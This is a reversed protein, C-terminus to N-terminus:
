RVGEGPPVALTAEWIYIQDQWEWRCRKWSQTGLIAVGPKGSSPSRVTLTEKAESRVGDGNSEHEAMHVGEERVRCVTGEVELVKSGSQM